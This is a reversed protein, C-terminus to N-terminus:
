KRRIGLLDMHRKMHKALYNYHIDENDNLLQFLEDKFLFSGDDKKTSLISGYTIHMLQRSDVKDLLTVLEDDKLTAVDPIADLDTTVHYSQRDADFHQLAFNHMRRYLDPAEAAAVRVAELWSTGATKGHFFGKTHKGIIPFVTFKDSGSHISVKYNGCHRAIVKQFQGVFKPALSQFNVGAKKLENAVFFHDRPLTDAETEDVSVEFDFARDGAEKKLVDYVKVMHEVAKAYIAVTRGLDAESFDFEVKVGSDQFKVSKGLYEKKLAKRNEAAKFVEVAEGDMLFAGKKNIHDAADITFMTFGLGFCMLAEEATKIHDADAAYGLAYGTQFVGFTADDIVDQPTRETRGMERMSQQALVPFVNFKKFAKIHGPTALGIRDGTGFSVKSGIAVPATFPFLTRLAKANAPSLPCVKLNGSVRGEFEEAASKVPGVILKKGEELRALFVFEDEVPNISRSYIFDLEKLAPKGHPIAQSIKDLKNM